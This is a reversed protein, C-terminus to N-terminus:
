RSGGPPLGAPGAPGAPPTPGAPPRPSSAPATGLRLIQRVGALPIRVWAPRHNLEYALEYVAKELLYADLLAELEDVAAPVFSASGARKLYAGRPLGCSM